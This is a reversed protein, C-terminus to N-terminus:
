KMNFRNFRNADYITKNIFLMGHINNCGNRDQMEESWGKSVINYFGM